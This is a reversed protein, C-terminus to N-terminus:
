ERIKRLCEKIPEWPRQEARLAAAVSVCKRKSQGVRCDKDNNMANPGQISQVRIVLFYIYYLLTSTMIVAMIITTFIFNSFLLSQSSPFSYRSCHHIHCYWQENNLHGRRQHIIIIIVKKWIKKIVIIISSFMSINTDLHGRRQHGEAM